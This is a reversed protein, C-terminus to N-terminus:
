EEDGRNPKSIIALYTLLVGTAFPVIAIIVVAIAPAPINEPGMTVKGMAACVVFFIIFVYDLIAFIVTVWWLIRDSKLSM